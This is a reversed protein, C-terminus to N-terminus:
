TTGAEPATARPAAVMGDEHRSSGEAVDSQDRVDVM